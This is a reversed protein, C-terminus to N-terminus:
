FGPIMFPLSRGVVGMPDSSFVRKVRRQGFAKEQLPISHIRKVGLLLVQWDDTHLAQAIKQLRQDYNIDSSALLILQKQEM